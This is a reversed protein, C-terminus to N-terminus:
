PLQNSTGMDWSMIAPKPVVPVKYKVKGETWM